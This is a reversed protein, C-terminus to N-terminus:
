ACLGMIQNPLSPDINFILRIIQNPLSPARARPPRRVEDCSMDQPHRGDVAVRPPTPPPSPTARLPASVPEPAIAGYAVDRRGRPAARQSRPPRAAPSARVSSPSDALRDARVQPLSAAHGILVPHPVRRTWKTRPPPPARGRGRAGLRRPHERPGRGAAAGSAGGRRLLFLCFCVFLLSSFSLCPRAPAGRVETVDDPGAERSPSLLEDEDEEETM